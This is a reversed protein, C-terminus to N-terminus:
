EGRAWLFMGAAEARRVAEDRELLIVGGAQWAIGALGAEAAQTVSDPGLTPLDVRRDQGPKPAKYFVGRAGNPNPKLGGHAAAFELMARTGPLTEIALCLGQAVVIGQGIDFAGLGQLISAGKAADRRDADEPQGTLVGEAPILDPIIEEVSAITLDHEQFVKLVERLAADDGSQMATLIRPVLQATRPDFLEPDLRPRRIAGAFVVRGVGKEVLDDLFPILRELRFPIAPLNPAFGDLAYVLPDDLAAIVAPALAGQGAIVATRTM